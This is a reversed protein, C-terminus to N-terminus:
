HQEGTVRIGERIDRSRYHSQAGRQWGWQDDLGCRNQLLPSEFVAYVKALPGFHCLAIVLHGVNVSEQRANFGGAAIFQIRQTASIIDEINPTRPADEPITQQQWVWQSCGSM